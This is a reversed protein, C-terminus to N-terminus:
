LLKILARQRAARVEPAEGVALGRRRAARHILETLLAGPSCEARRALAVLLAKVEPALRVSTSPPMPTKTREIESM